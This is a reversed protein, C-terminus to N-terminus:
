CRLLGHRWGFAQRVVRSKCHLDGSFEEWQAESLDIYITNETENDAVYKGLADMHSTGSYLVALNLLVCAAAILIATMLTLRWQLSLRKM